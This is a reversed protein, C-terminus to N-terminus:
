KLARRIQTVLSRQEAKTTARVREFEQGNLKVDAWFDDGDVHFHLFAKSGKYFTGTSKEKLGDVTRLQDLLPAIAELEEAIAHRM